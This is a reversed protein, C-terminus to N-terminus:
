RGAVELEAVWEDIAARCYRYYRGLRVTPISGSRTQAYVWSPEVGLLAAVEQATLLKNDMAPLKPEPPSLFRDSNM